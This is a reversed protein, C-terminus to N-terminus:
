KKITVIIKKKEKNELFIKKINFLHTMLIKRKVQEKTLDGLGGVLIVVFAHPNIYIHKHVSFFFIHWM